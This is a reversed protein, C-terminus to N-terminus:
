AVGGERKFRAQNYKEDAAELSDLSTSLEAMRRRLTRVDTWGSSGLAAADQLFRDRRRALDAWEPNM